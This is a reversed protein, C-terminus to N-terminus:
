SSPETVTLHRSMLHRGMIQDVTTHLTASPLFQSRNVSSYPWKGRMRAGEM